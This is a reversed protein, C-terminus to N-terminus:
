PQILIPKKKKQPAKLFMRMGGGVLFPTAAESLGLNAQGYVQFKPNKKLTKSVELQLTSVYDFKPQQWGYYGLFSMKMRFNNKGELQIAASTKYSDNQQGLNTDWAIFAIETLLRVKRIIAEESDSNYIDKSALISFEYGASDTYRHTSLFDGAATKTTAQFSIAPRKQTEKLIRVKTKFNPEGDIRTQKSQIGYKLATAPTIQWADTMVNAEIEVWSAFPIKLRFMGGQVFGLNDRGGDMRLDLIIQDGIRADNVHDVFAFAYAGTNGPQPRQDVPVETQAQSASAILISLLFPLKKM